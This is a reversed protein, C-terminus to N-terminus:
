WKMGLHIADWPDVPVHRFACSIDVKFLRAETGLSWLAPLLNDLTLLILKFTSGGFRDKDTANNVSRYRHSLDLIVRHGTGKPRTMLPSWTLAPHPNSDFPVFLVGQELQSKFFADIETPFALASHHNITANSRRSNLFKINLPFGSNKLSIRIVALWACFWYMTM